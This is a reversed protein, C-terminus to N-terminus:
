VLGKAYRAMAPDEKALKALRKRALEHMKELKAALVPFPKKTKALMERADLIADKLNDYEGERWERLVEKASEELRMLAVSLGRKKAAARKTAGLVRKPNQANAHAWAMLTHEALRKWSLGITYPVPENKLKPDFGVLVGGRPLKGSLVLFRLPAGPTSKEPASDLVRAGAVEALEPPTPGFWDKVEVMMCASSVKGVRCAAFLDKRIRFAIFSGPQLSSPM